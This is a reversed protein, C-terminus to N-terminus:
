KVRRAAGNPGASMREGGRFLGHRRLRVADRRRPDRSNIGPVPDGNEDLIKGTVIIRQGAAEGGELQRTLGAHNAYRLTDDFSPGSLETAAAPLAIPRQRPARETTSAYAPHLLDPHVGPALKRLNM